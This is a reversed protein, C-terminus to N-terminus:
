LWSEFRPRDSELRWSRERRWPAERTLSEKRDMEVAVMRTHSRRIKTSSEEEMGM